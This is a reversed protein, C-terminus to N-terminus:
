KVLNFWGTIIYKTENTVIGSHMHTWETPWLYTDGEIAETKYDQYKFYTGGNKVTNLYTMFVLIRTSVDYHPRECHSIKFGGGPNYKQININEIVKYPGLFNNLETYTNAYNQLCRQLQQHYENFPYEMLNASIVLDMSDKISTDVKNGIVSIHSKDKNDEFYKVIDKCLKKDVVDKHIFTPAM